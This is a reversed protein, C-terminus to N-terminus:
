HIVRFFRSIYLTKQSKNLLTKADQRALFRVKNLGEYCLVVALFDYDGSIDKERSGTIKIVYKNDLLIFPGDLEKARRNNQWIIKKVLIKKKDM